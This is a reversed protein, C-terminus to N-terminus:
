PSTSRAATTEKLWLTVHAPQMTESVVGLIEDTLRDLQVEDRLAASFASLTRAADYKRRYFRQDIIAQVRRRLPSFLAAIVLTSIVTVVESQARGTFLRFITQWLVVSGFYILVLLGTLWGYVLTRRIIIDINWLRSRLIAVGISIPILLMFLYIATSVALLSFVNAELAPNFSVPVVIALFGTLAATICYVVWKTQQRQVSNSVYRYRYLQALLGSGVFTLFSASGLTPSWNELNLLSDPLVYAPARLLLWGFPLLRTWGPRFRGDPFTYLFVLIFLDGLTQLVRFLLLAAPQDASPRSDAFTALGFIILTLSVFYGVPDASKRAFILVGVALYVSALLSNAIVHYVAYHQASLGHAKLARVQESGLLGNDCVAAGCSTSLTEFTPRVGSIFLVITLGVLALWVARAVPLRWGSLTNQESKELEREV